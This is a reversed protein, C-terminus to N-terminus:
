HWVWGILAATGALLAVLSLVVASVRLSRLTAESPAFAFGIVPLVVALLLASAALKLAIEQWPLM